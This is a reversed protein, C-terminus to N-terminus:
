MVRDVGSRPTETQPLSGLSGGRGSADPVAPFAGGAPSSSANAAWTPTSYSSFSSPQRPAQRAPRTTSGVTESVRGMLRFDNVDENYRQPSAETQRSGAFGQGHLEDGPKEVVGANGPSGVPTADASAVGDALNRSESPNGDGFSTGAGVYGADEDNAANANQGNSSNTQHTPCEDGSQGNIRREERKTGRATKCGGPRENSAEERQPKEPRVFDPRVGWSRCSAGRKAPRSMQNLRELDVPRGVSEGSHHMVIREGSTPSHVRAARPLALRQSIADIESKSHRSHEMEKSQLALTEGAPIRNIMLKKPQSLRACFDDMQSKGVKMTSSKPGSTDEELGECGLSSCGKLGWANGTPAQRRPQALYDQRRRDYPKRKCRLYTELVLQEGFSLPLDLSMDASSGAASGGGDQNWQDQPEEWTDSRGDVPQSVENQSAEDKWTRPAAGVSGATGARVKSYAVM